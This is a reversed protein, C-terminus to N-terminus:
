RAFHRRDVGASLVAGPQERAEAGRRANRRPPQDASEWKEEGASSEWTSDGMMDDRLKSKECGFASAILLAALLVTLYRSM